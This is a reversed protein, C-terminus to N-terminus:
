EQEESQRPQANSIPAQCDLEPGYGNLGLRDLTMTTRLKGKHRYEMRAPIYDHDILLWFKRSRTSGPSAEEIVMADKNGLSTSITERGVERVHYDKLKDRDVAMYIGPAQGQIMDLMMALAIVNADVTGPPIAIELQQEQYLVNAVHTDNNFVVTVDEDRKKSGDDRTHELPVLGNCELKFRSVDMAKGPYMVSALGKAEAMTTFRYENAQADFEATSSTKANASLVGYRAEISYEASYLPLKVPEAGAQASTWYMLFVPLSRLIANSIPM